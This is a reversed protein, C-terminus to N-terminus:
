RVTFTINNYNLVTTKGTNLVFIITDYEKIIAVVKSLEHTVLKDNYVTTITVTM